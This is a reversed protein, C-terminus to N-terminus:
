TSFPKFYDWQKLFDLVASVVRAGKAAHLRILNRPWDFALDGTGTGQIIIHKRYKERRHGPSPLGHEDGVFVMQLTKRRLQRQIAKPFLPETFDLDAESDGFAITAGIVTDLLTGKGLVEEHIRQLARGAAWSKGLRLKNAVPVIDIATGAPAVDVLDELGEAKIMNNVIQVFPKQDFVQIGAAKDRIKELTAFVQKSTSWIYPHLSPRKKDISVIWGKNNGDYIVKERPGVRRGPKYPKLGKPDYVLERLKDRIAGKNTALPHDEVLPHIRHTVEGESDIGVIVSGAEGNFSLNHGVERFMPFKQMPAVVNKALWGADRGTIFSHHIQQSGLCIIKAAIEHSLLGGDEDTITGDIDWIIHSAHRLKAFDKIFFM